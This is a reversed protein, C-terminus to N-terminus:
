VCVESFSALLRNYPSLTWKRVYSREREYADQLHLTDPVYPTGDIAKSYKRLSDRAAVLDQQSVTLPLLGLVHAVKEPILTPHAVLTCSRPLQKEAATCISGLVRALFEEKSRAQVWMKPYGLLHQSASPLKHLWLMQSPKRLNSLLVPLPDRYVFLFHATPFLRAIAEAGMINLSFLKIVVCRKRLRHAADVLRRITASIVFEVDCSEDLLADLGYMPFLLDTLIPHESYVITDRSARFVNLLATSGCRSMHFVFVLPVVLNPQSAERLESLKTRRVPAGDGIM